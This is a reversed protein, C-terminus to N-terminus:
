AKPANQTELYKRLTNIAVPLLAGAVYGWPGLGKLVDVNQTLYISVAGLASLAAGILISKVQESVSEDGAKKSKAVWAVRHTVLPNLFCLAVAQAAHLCKDVTRQSGVCWTM